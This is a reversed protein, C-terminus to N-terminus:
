YAGLYLLRFNTQLPEIYDEEYVKKYESVVAKILGFTNNIPDIIKAAKVAGYKPLGAIKDCSDGQLLQKALFKQADFKTTYSLGKRKFVEIENGEEDKLSPKRYFNYIFGGIQTMDKDMTVIICKFEGLEKARDAIIDDSELTDSYIANNKSIYTKRLCNVIPNPQRNAKYEKSIDKRISNKCHTVYIEVATIEINNEDNSIDLLIDNLMNELRDAGVEALSEIITDADENSLGCKEVFAPDDLKYCSLYFLSDADILAIM